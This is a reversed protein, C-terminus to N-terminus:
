NYRGKGHHSAFFNWSLELSFQKALHSLNRFLYRQKFQCASGNSFIILEKISPLLIKLRKFIHELCKAVTYKDHSPDDSIIVMPYTNSNSWIYATFVSLQKRSWHASQIENQEILSFNESYDVQLLCKEDTVNKKLM